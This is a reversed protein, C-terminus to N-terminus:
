MQAQQMKDLSAVLMAETRQQFEKLLLTQKAATSQNQMTDLLVVLLDQLNEMQMSKQILHSKKTKDKQSKKLHIELNFLVTHYKVAMIDLLEALMNVMKLILVILQLTTLFVMIRELLEALLQATM